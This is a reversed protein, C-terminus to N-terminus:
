CRDESRESAALPLPHTAPISATDWSAVFTKAAEVIREICILLVRHDVREEASPLSPLKVAQVVTELEQISNQLNVLQLKCDQLEGERHHM